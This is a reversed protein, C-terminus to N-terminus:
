RPRVVAVCSIHQGLQNKLVMTILYWCKKLLKEPGICIEPSKLAQNKKRWKEPSQLVKWSGHSGQEEYYVCMDLGSCRQLKVPLPLASWKIIICYAINLLCQFASSLSGCLSFFLLFLFVSISRLYRVSLLRHLWNQPLSLRCHSPNTFCTLKLSTTFSNLLTVVRKWCHNEIVKGHGFFHIEM